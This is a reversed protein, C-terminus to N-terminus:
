PFSAEWVRLDDFEVMAVEGQAAIGPMGITLGIQGDRLRRDEGGDIYEGDIYLAIFDEVCIVRMRFSGSRPIGSDGQWRVIADDQNRGLYRISFDGAASVVVYYGRGNEPHLRCIVGAFADPNDSLWTVDVDIITNSYHERNTGYIYQDSEALLMRYVGDAVTAAYADTNFSSWNGPNSFTENLLREGSNISRASEEPSLKPLCASLILMILLLMPKPM